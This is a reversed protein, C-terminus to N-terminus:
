VLIHKEKPTQEQEMLFHVDLGGNEQVSSPTRRCACLHRVKYNLACILSVCDADSQPRPLSKVRVVSFLERTIGKMAGNLVGHTLGDRIAM